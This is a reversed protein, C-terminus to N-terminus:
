RRHTSGHPGKPNKQIPPELILLNADHTLIGLLIANLVRNISVEYRGTNSVPNQRYPDAVRVTKDDRSYGSLVVFHGTPIGKIDDPQTDRARERMTRYLYTSSLGTLIPIDRNLYHRILSATLEEYRLAGGLELFELYAQTAFALTASRKSSAQLRLKGALEASPMPFWTPDFLELNYTYITARYGAKLAHCALLVALTGGAELSRVERIVRDLSIRSGFYRYVAHLCTPGCTIDDPQPLVEISLSKRM